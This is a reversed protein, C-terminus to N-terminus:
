VLISFLKLRNDTSETRLLTETPVASETSNPFPRICKSLTMKMPIALYGRRIWQVLPTSSNDYKEDSQIRENTKKKKNDATVRM